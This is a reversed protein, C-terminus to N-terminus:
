SRNENKTKRKEDKTITRELKEIAKVLSKDTTQMTKAAAALENAAATVYPLATEEGTAAVGLYGFLRVRDALNEELERFMANQALTAQLGLFGVILSGALGLLS